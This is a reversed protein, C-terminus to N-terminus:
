SQFRREVLMPGITVQRLPSMQQRMLEPAEELSRGISELGKELEARTPANVRDIRNEWGLIVKDGPIFVFERNGYGFVGTELRHGYRAFTDM